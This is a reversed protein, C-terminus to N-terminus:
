ASQRTENRAESNALVTKSAASVSLTVDETTDKVGGQTLLIKPSHKTLFTSISPLLTAAVKRLTGPSVGLAGAAEKLSMTTAESSRQFVLWAVAACISSPRTGECISNAVTEVCVREITTGERYSLGLAVSMKRPFGRLLAKARQIQLDTDDKRTGLQQTDHPVVSVGAVETQSFQASPQQEHPSKRETQANGNRKAFELSSVIKGHLKRAIKMSDLEAAAALAEMKVGCQHETCALFVLAVAEAKTRSISLTRSHMSYKKADAVVATGLHLRHAIKKIIINLRVQRKDIREEATTTSRAMTGRASCYTGSAYTQLSTSLTPDQIDGVRNKSPGDDGEFERWEKTGLVLRDSVVGCVSCVHDGNHQDAFIYAKPDRCSSCVPFLKSNSYSTNHFYDAPLSNLM